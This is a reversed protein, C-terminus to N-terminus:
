IKVFTGNQMSGRRHEIEAWAVDVCADISTGQMAALIVLTVLIDGIDDRTDLGKATNDALEGVESVTKLTQTKPDSKDFIGRERAWDRIQQERNM